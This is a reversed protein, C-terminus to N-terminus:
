LFSLEDHLKQNEIYVPPVVPMERDKAEKSAKLKYWISGQFSDLTKKMGYKILFNRIFEDAFEVGEKKEKEEKSLIEAIQNKTVTKVMAKEYDLLTEEDQEETM